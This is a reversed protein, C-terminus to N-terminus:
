SGGKRKGGLAETIEYFGQNFNGYLACQCAALEGVIDPNLFDKSNKNLFAKPEKGASRAHQLITALIAADPPKLSFRKEYDTALKVTKDFLPAVHSCVSLRDLTEDLRKSDEEKSGLIAM